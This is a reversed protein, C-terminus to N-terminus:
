EGRESAQSTCADDNRFLELRNDTGPFEKVLRYGKPIVVPESPDPPDFIENIFWCPPELIAKKIKVYRVPNGHRIYPNFSYLLLMLRFEHNGTATATRETSHAALFQVADREGNIRQGMVHFTSLGSSSSWLLIAIVIGKGWRGREWIQALLWSMIGAVFLIPIILYRVALLAFGFYSMVLVITMTIIATFIFAARTGEQRLTWLLVIATIILAIMAGILGHEPTGFLASVAGALADAPSLLVTIGGVTFERLNAIYLILFFFAPLFFL